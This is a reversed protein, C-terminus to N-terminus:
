TTSFYRDAVNAAPSPGAVLGPSGANRRIPRGGQLPDVLDGAREAAGGVAQTIHQIEVLVLLAPAVVQRAVELAHV